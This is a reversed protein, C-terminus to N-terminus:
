PVDALRIPLARVDHDDDDRGLTATYLALAARYERQAAEIRGQAVLSDGLERRTVAIM